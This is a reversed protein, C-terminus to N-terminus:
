RAASFLHSIVNLTRLSKNAMYNQTVFKKRFFVNNVHTSAIPAKNYHWRRRTCATSIGWSWLYVLRIIVLAASPIWLVNTFPICWAYIYVARCAQDEINLRTGAVVVPCCWAVKFAFTPSITLDVKCEASQKKFRFGSYCCIIQNRSFNNFYNSLLWSPQPSGNSYCAKTLIRRSFDNCNYELPPTAIIEICRNQAELVHIEASTVHPADVQKDPPM